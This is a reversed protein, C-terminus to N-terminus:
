HKAPSPPTLKASQQQAQKTKVKSAQPKQEQQTKEAIVQRVMKLVMGATPHVMGVAEPGYSKVAKLVRNLIVGHTPNEFFYGAESLSIQAKHLTELTLTSIGIDFLASTTRFELHWTTTLAFTEPQNGATLFAVNALANNDLRFVPCSKAQVLFRPVTEDPSTVMTHDKFDLLDGSPPCYTYMGTELPLWAKELPHINNLYASDVDWVSQIQPAIRGGLATGAKNLVPTVNTVLLSAATLRASYWPMASNSFEASYVLPIFGTKAAGTLTLLGPTSTSTGYSWSGCGVAFHIFTNLCTTSFSAGAFSMFRPRIWRGSLGPDLALAAATNGAGLSYAGMASAYAQYTEGPSSWLDVTLSGSLAVTSLVSSLGGIVFIASWNKPVWVFPIPGCADDVGVIPYKFVPEVTGAYGVQLGQAPRNGNAWDCIGPSVDVTRDTSTAGAQNACAYTVGYAASNLSYEGWTPWTPSRMLAVKATNDASIPLTSPASFGIVATRELSPFSPLRVPAHEKPLAITKALGELSNVPHHKPLTGTSFQM